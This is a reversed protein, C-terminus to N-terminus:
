RALALGAVRDIVVSRQVTRTHTRPLDPEPYAAHGTIRQHRETSQALMASMAPPLTPGLGGALGRDM